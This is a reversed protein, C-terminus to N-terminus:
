FQTTLTLSTVHELMSSHSNFTQCGLELEECNGNHVRFDHQMTDTHSVVHCPNQRCPSGATTTSATAKAKVLLPLSTRRPRPQWDNSYSSRWTGDFTLAIMNHIFGHSGGAPSLRGLLGLPKLMRSWTPSVGAQALLRGLYASHRHLPGPQLPGLSNNRTSPHRDCSFPLNPSNHSLGGGKELSRVKRTVGRPLRATKLFLADVCVLVRAIHAHWTSSSQSTQQTVM